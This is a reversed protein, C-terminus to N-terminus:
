IMTWAFGMGYGKGNEEGYGFSFAEVDFGSGCGIGVSSSYGYGYPGDGAGWGSSEDDSELDWYGFGYGKEHDALAYDRSAGYNNRLEERMISVGHHLRQITDTVATLEVIVVVEELKSGRYICMGAAREM